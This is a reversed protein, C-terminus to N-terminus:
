SMVALSFAGLPTEPRPQSSPGPVSVTPPSNSLVEPLRPESQIPHLETVEAECDNEGASLAAWLSFSAGNALLLWQGKPLLPPPIRPSRAKTKTVM